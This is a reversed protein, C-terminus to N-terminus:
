RERARRIGLAQGCRLAFENVGLVRPADRLEPEPLARILRILTMRSTGASVPWGAADRGGLSLAIARLAERLGTSM